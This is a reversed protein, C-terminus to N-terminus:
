HITFSTGTVDSTFSVTSGPSITPACGGSYCASVTWKGSSYSSRNYWTGDITGAGGYFGQDSNSSNNTKYCGDGTNCVSHHSISAAAVTDSAPAVSLIDGTTPDMVVSIALGSDLLSIESSTLDALQAATPTSSTAQTAAVSVSPVIGVGIAAVAAAGWVLSQKPNM